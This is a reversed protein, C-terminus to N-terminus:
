TYKITKGLLLKDSLPNGGLLLKPVLSFYPAATQAPYTAPVARRNLPAQSLTPHKKRVM